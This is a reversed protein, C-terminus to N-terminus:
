LAPKHAKGSWNRLWVELPKLGKVPSYTLSSKLEFKAGETASADGFYRPITFTKNRASFLSVLWGFVGAATPTTDTPELPFADHRLYQVPSQAPTKSSVM